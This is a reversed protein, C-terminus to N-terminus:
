ASSSPFTALLKAVVCWPTHCPSHPGVGSPVEAKCALCKGDEGTGGDGHAMQNLAVLALSAWSSLESATAGASLCPPPGVVVAERTAPGTGMSSGVGIRRVPPTPPPPSAAVSRTGPATAPLYVHRALTVVSSHHRTSFVRGLLTRQRQPQQLQPGSQPMGVMDDSAQARVGAPLAPPRLTSVHPLVSVTAANPLPRGGTGHPAHGHGFAASGHPSPGFGARRAASQQARPPTTSSIHAAAAGANSSSHGARNDGTVRAQLASQIIALANSFHHQVALVGFCTKGVNNSPNLPDVIVLPDAQFPGGRIRRQVSPSSVCRCRCLLSILPAM